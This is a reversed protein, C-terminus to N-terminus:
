ATNIPLNFIEKFKTTHYLGVITDFTFSLIHITKDPYFNSKLERNEYYLNNLGNMNPHSNGNQSWVSLGNITNPHVNRGLINFDDPKSKKFYIYYNFLDQCDYNLVIEKSRLEELTELLEHCLEINLKWVDGQIYKNRPLVFQKCETLSWEDSSEGGTEVFFNPYNDIYSIDATIQTDLDIWLFSENFIKCLDRYIFFKNLSMQKWPHDYMKLSNDYYKFINITTDEIELDFNTFIVLSFERLYRKLNRIFLHCIKKLDERSVRGIDVCFTFIKM